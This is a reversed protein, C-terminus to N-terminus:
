VGGEKKWIARAVEVEKILQGEVDDVYAKLLELGGSIFATRGCQIAATILELQDGIMELHCRRLSKADLIDGKLRQIDTIM